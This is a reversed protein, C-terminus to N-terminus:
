FKLIYNFSLSFFEEKSDLRDEPDSSCLHAVLWRLRDQYIKNKTLEIIMDSIFFVSPM